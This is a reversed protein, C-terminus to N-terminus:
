QILDHVGERLHGLVPFRHGHQRAGVALRGGGGAQALLEENEHVTQFALHFLDPADGPRGLEPAGRAVEVGVLGGVRLDVPDGEAVGEDLLGQPKVAGPDGGLDLGVVVQGGKTIGYLADIRM